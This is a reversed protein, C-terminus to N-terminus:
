IQNTNQEGKSKDNQSAEQHSTTMNEDENGHTLLYSNSQLLRGNIKFEFNVDTYLAYKKFGVKEM